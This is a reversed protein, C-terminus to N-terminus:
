WLKAFNDNRFTIARPVYSGNDRRLTIARDLNSGNDSSFTIARLIQCLRYRYHTVGNRKSTVNGVETYIYIYIYICVYM